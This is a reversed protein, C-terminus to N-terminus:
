KFWTLQPTTKAPNHDFEVNDWGRIYTKSNYMNGNVQKFRDNAQRLQRLKNSTIPQVNSKRGIFDFNVYNTPKFNAGYIENFSDTLPNQSEAAGWPPPNATGESLPWVDNDNGQMLMMELQKEQEGSYMSESEPESLKRIIHKAEEAEHHRHIKQIVYNLGFIIVGIRIAPMLSEMESISSYKSKKNRYFLQM